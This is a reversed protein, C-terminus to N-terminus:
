SNEDSANLITISYPFMYMDKRCKKFFLVVKKCGHELLSNVSFPFCTSRTNQILTM